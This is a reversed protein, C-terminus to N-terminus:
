VKVLVTHQQGQNSPEQDFLCFDLNQLSQKTRQLAVRDEFSRTPEAFAMQMLWAIMLCKCPSFRGFSIYLINCKTLLVDRRRCCLMYIFKCTEFVLRCSDSSFPNASAM